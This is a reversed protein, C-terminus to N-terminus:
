EDEEQGRWFDPDEISRHTLLERRELRWIIDAVRTKSLSVERAIDTKRRGSRHALVIETDRGRNWSVSNPSNIQRYCNWRILANRVSGGLSVRSGRYSVLGDDILRGAIAQTGMDNRHMEIISERLSELFGAPSAGDSQHRTGVHPALFVCGCNPCKHSM